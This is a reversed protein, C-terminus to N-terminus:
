QTEHFVDGLISDVEEQVTKPTRRTGPFFEKMYTFGEHCNSCPKGTDTWAECYGCGSRGIREDDEIEEIDEQYIRLGCSTVKQIPMTNLQDTFLNRTDIKIWEGEISELKKSYSGLYRQYCNSKLRIRM